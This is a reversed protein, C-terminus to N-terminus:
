AGGVAGTGFVEMKIRGGDVGMGVLVDRMDCMFGEPGCIFYEADGRELFLDQEADLAGLKMRGAFQYDAGLKDNESPQSMFVQTRVNHHQGAIKRIDSSFAHTRSNRTAHIWSIPQASPKQTLTRLISLMPTLGVGASILAIPKSAGDSSNYYFEGAPHSVQLTDGIHKSDHLVNSVYGPHALAAPDSLSLGTEKKVSICYHTPSPAESLSYQRSQLHNLQPVTTRISIYQGPHYSPLPKDDVPKLHFSTIDESETVKSIITFDRWNTWNPRENYLQQERGM